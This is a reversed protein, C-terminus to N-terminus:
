EYRAEQHLCAELARRTLVGAMARRYEASGLYDGSPLVEEEVAQAVERIYDGDLPGGVLKAAGEALRSPEPWVGTLAIRAEKVIDNDMELVAVAAVIPEDASTRAVRAEGWRHNPGPLPVNLTTIDGEVKRQLVHELPTEETEGEEEVTVTAGLALSAAVWQPAVRASILARRVSVENRTQWPMAGRLMRRLLLPASPRDLVAQLSASTEIRWSERVRDEKM